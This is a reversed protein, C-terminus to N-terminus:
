GQHPSLAKSGASGQRAVQSRAGLGQTAVRSFWFSIDPVKKSKKKQNLGWIKIWLKTPKNSYSTFYKRYLSKGHQTLSMHGRAKLGPHLNIM